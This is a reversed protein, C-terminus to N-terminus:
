PEEPAPHRTNFDERLAALEPDGAFRREAEDLVEEAAAWLEREMLLHVRINVEEMDRVKPPPPGDARRLRAAELPLRGSSELAEIARRRVLPLGARGAHEALDVLRRAHHGARRFAGEIEREREAESHARAARRLHGKIQRVAVSRWWAPAAVLLALGLLPLLVEPPLLQQLPEILDSLGRM